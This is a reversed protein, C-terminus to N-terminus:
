KNEDKIKNILETFVNDQLFMENEDVLAKFEIKRSFENTNFLIGLNKENRGAIVISNFHNRNTFISKIKQLLNVGVLKDQYNFHLSATTAEYGNIEEVLAKTLNNKECFLNPVVSVKLYDIKKLTEIFKQEDYVDKSVFKSNKFKTQFYEILSNRKRSNSLWLFGTNFDILGFTEKPEAHNAQRPNPVTEKAETDYVNPNRPMTSGDGFIVKLYNEYYSFSFTHVSKTGYINETGELLNNKFNDINVVSDNVSLFTGTFIINKTKTNEM